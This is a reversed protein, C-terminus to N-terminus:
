KAGLIFRYTLGVHTDSEWVGSIRLVYDQLSSPMQQTNDIRLMGHTLHHALSYVMNKKTDHIREYSDLVQKELPILSQVMAANDELAPNFYLVTTSNDEALHVFLDNRMFGPPDVVIRCRLFLGYMTFHAHAYLLNTFTGHDMVANKKKETFQLFQTPLPSWDQLCLNM